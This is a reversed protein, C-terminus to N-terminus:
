MSASIIITMYEIIYIVTMYEIYVRYDDVIIIIVFITTNTVNPCVYYISIYCKYICNTLIYYLFKKILIKFVIYLFLYEFNFNEIWKKEKVAERFKMNDIISIKWYKYYIIIIKKQM